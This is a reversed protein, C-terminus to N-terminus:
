GHAGVSHVPSIRMGRYSAGSTFPCATVSTTNAGQALLFVFLLGLLSSRYLSRM